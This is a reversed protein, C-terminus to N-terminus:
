KRRCFISSKEKGHKYTARNIERAKEEKKTERLKM